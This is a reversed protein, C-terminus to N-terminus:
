KGLNNVSEFKSGGKTPSITVYAIIKCDERSITVDKGFAVMKNEPGNFFSKVKIKPTTKPMKTTFATFWHDYRHTNGTANGALFGFLFKIPRKQVNANFEDKFNNM